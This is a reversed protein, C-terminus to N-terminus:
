YCSSGGPTGKFGVAISFIHSFKSQSKQGGRRKNECRGSWNPKWQNIYVNVCYCSLGGLNGKFGLVVSFIPTFLTPNVSM